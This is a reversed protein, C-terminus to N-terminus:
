NPYLWVPIFFVLSWYLEMPIIWFTNIMLQLANFVVKTAV